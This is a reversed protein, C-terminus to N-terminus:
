GAPGATGSGAGHLPGLYWLRIGADVPLEVGTIYRARESALFSVAYAIDEPRGREQMPVTGLMRESIAPNRPRSKDVQIIGPCVANCTIGYRANELAVTKTLGLLGAKSAAYSPAGHLGMLGVISSINVIRGWRREIMGPLVAQICNFPGGLNVGIEWDWKERTMARATGYNTTIGANNVLIDIRGLEAFARGIQEHAVASDAVDFVLGLSRRGTAEIERVTEQIDEHLDTVVVDAGDEALIRATAQGLGRAAGTVLAVKGEHPLM